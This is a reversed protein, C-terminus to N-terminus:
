FLTERDRGILDVIRSWENSFGRRWLKHRRPKVDLCTNMANKTNNFGSTLRSRIYCTPRLNESQLKM